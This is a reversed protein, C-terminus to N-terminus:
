DQRAASPAEPIRVTLARKEVSIRIHKTEGLIDGDVEALAPKELELEASVGQIQEITSNMSIPNQEPKKTVTQYVIDGALNVWGILGGTTDLIEFDLIGDDYSAKPMLSFMPIQGCNGAM